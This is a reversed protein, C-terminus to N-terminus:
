LRRDRTRWRFYEDTCNMMFSILPLAQLPHPEALADGTVLHTDCRSFVGCDRRNSPKKVRRSQGQLARHTYSEETKKALSRIVAKNYALRNPLGPFRHMMERATGILLM